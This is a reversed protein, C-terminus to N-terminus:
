SVVVTTAPSPALDGIRLVLEGGPVSWAGPITGREYEEPTRSDLVVLDAGQEVLEQLQSPALMPTERMHLVREGFAKSPVNVGTVLPREAATWDALPL